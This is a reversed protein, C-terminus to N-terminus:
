QFNGLVTRFSSRADVGTPGRWVIEIQVPLILYDLAHNLDDQNGDGNLDRPMGLEPINVSELLNGEDGERVPFSIEGVFGDADGDVASLGPVAFHKGPATGVGGPDDTPDDNFLAFAQKFDQSQLTELMGRAAEKAVTSEHSDETADISSVIMRSFSLLGVVLVVFAIMVEIISSGRRQRPVELRVGSGSGSASDKRKLVRM